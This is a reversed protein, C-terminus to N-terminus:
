PRVLSLNYKIEVEDKESEPYIQEPQNRLSFTRERNLTSATSLEHLDPIIIVTSIYEETPYHFNGDNGVTPLPVYGLTTFMKITYPSGFGFLTAANLQSAMAISARTLYLGFGKGTIKKSTWLGCAEGTGSPVRQLVEDRIRLDLYDIASEVPLLFDPHYMHLKVGGVIESTEDYAAVVYVEPNRLWEPDSSTLSDIGYDRLVQKHGELYELSKAPEDVARFGQFYYRM